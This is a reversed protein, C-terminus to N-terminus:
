VAGSPAPGGPAMQSLTTRAVQQSSRGYRPSSGSRRRCTGAPPRQPRNLLAAPKGRTSTPRTGTGGTTRRPQRRTPTTAPPRRTCSCPSSPSMWRECGARFDSPSSRCCGATATPTASRRTRPTPAGSPTTGRPAHRRRPSSAAASAAASMTSSTAATTVGQNGILVSATSGPPTMHLARYGQPGAIDVDERWGLSSYFQKARDVDAVPVVVVELKFDVTGTEPAQVQTDTTMDITTM